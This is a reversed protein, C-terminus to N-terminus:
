TGKEDDTIGLARRIQDSLRVLSPNAAIRGNLLGQDIAPKRAPPHQISFGRHHIADGEVVRKMSRYNLDHARCFDALNHVQYVEIPEWGSRRGSRTPYHYITVERM